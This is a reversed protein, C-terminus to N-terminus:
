RALAKKLEAMQQPSGITIRVFDEIGPTAFHRILIGADRAQEYLERGSRGDKRAFVFNTTSDIVFFGQERLFATLSERESIIRRANQAYYGAARCSAIAATKAVFDVPFHNFSNKVRFVAQVLEPDAVIYGLRMGAFSLSKSFTRVIVLNRHTKLLPLCSEGGFDCYAEDVAVVQGAPAANLMAEVQSRTLALGTPANPNAFIISSKTRNAHALMTDTDLTWDPRLPVRDMPIQYYGCYVPYFSYTHEPFVLPRDSDFFSYFVFSLVEDSGNGCFIMDPTIEFGLEDEPAPSCASTAVDNTACDTGGAAANAARSGNAKGNTACCGTSCRTRALVGGTANLMRAIETRLETVDPDPYLSLKEPHSSLADNVAAIVSPHPPYPNENANLKIYVRDTPQEGPVYPHLNELRKLVFEM